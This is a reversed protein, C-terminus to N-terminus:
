RTCTRLYRRCAALGTCLHEASIAVDYSCFIVFTGWLPMSSYALSWSVFDESRKLHRTGAPRAMSV